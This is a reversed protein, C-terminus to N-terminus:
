NENSNVRDVYNTKLCKFMFMPTSLFQMIINNLVKVVGDCVCYFYDPLVHELM